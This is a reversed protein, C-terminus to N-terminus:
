SLISAPPLAMMTGRGAADIRVVMRVRAGATVGDGLFTVVAPGADLTVIGIRLPLLANFSPDASVRVTTEAAVVGGSAVDRWPLRAGLCRVCADRPPYQVAGCDECCQLAFRGAAAAEALSNM